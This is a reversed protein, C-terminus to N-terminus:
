WRAPQDFTIFPLGLRSHTAGPRAFALPLADAVDRPGLSRGLACLDAARASFFLGAGAADRPSLGAALLAGIVGALQDGMGASATDSSGASNVMVPADQTAVVSPQGKLLVTCGFRTAAEAAAHLPDAAIEAAPRALLREMEGAHPTLVVPRAACLARLDDARAAFLTVADADLLVPKGDTLHLARELAALGEPDAGIGPGAVLAHAISGDEESLDERAVFTAEPLLSQLIIRNAAVSCLRVLGAGARRAAHGALGAAGAMGERGALILVRGATGKHADPARAPLRAAAWAPTIVEATTHGPPPFGIEGAIM